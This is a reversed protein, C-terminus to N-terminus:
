HYVPYQLLFQRVMSVLDTRDIPKRFYAARPAKSVAAYLTDAPLASVLIVPIAQTIESSRLIELAQFGNMNPMNVDLIIVDPSATRALHIAMRGDDGCVVRFGEDELIDKLSDSFRADDDIVV